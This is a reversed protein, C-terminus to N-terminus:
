LLYGTIIFTASLLLTFILIKGAAWVFFEGPFLTIILSDSAFMWNGQPFFINHFAEFLQDFGSVGIFGFLLVFVGSAIGGYFLGKGLEGKKYLYVGFLLLAILAIVFVINVAKMVSKVDELHSAEASTFNGQLTGSSYVYDVVDQQEATYSSTVVLINYAALPLVIVSLVVFALVKLNKNVKVM